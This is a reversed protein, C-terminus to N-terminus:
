ACTTCSKLVTSLSNYISTENSETASQTRLEERWALAAKKYKTDNLLCGVAQEIQAQQASPLPMSIGAGRATVAKATLWKETDDFIALQPVGTAACLQSIGLGGHHIFIRCSEFIDQPRFLTTRVTLGARIAAERIDTGAGELTIIPKPRLAGLLPLIRAHRRIDPGFYIGIETPRPVHTENGVAAQPPLVPEVRCLNCPDFERYCRPIRADGLIAQLPDIGTSRGTRKMAEHISSKIRDQLAADNTLNDQFPAFYGERIVPVTFGNGIALAPIRGSAAIMVGPSFDGVVATPSILRFLSDWARVINTVVRADAMGLNATVGAYSNIRAGKSVGSDFWNEQQLRPWGPAPVVDEFIYKERDISSIRFPAMVVRWGMRGLKAAIASLMTVHGLGYGLENAILITKMDPSRRTAGQPPTDSDTLQTRRGKSLNLVSSSVDIGCFM